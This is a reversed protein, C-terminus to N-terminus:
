RPDSPSINKPRIPKIPKAKNCGIAVNPNLRVVLDAPRFNTIQLLTYQNIDAMQTNAIVM